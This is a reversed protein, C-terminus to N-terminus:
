DSFFIINSCSSNSSQVLLLDREWEGEFTTFALNAFEDIPGEACCCCCCCFGLDKQCKKRWELFCIAWQPQQWWGSSSLQNKKMDIAPEPAEKAKSFGSVQEYGDTSPAQSFFGISRSCNTKSQNCADVTTIWRLNELVSVNGPVHRRCMLESTATTVHLKWERPWFLQLAFFSPYILDVALFSKVCQFQTIILWSSSTWLSKNCHSHSFSSCMLDVDFNKVPMPSSPSSAAM